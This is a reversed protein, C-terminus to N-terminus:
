HAVDVLNGLGERLDEGLGSAYPDSVEGVACVKNRRLHQPSGPYSEVADAHDQRPFDPRRHVLKGIGTRGVQEQECVGAGWIFQSPICALLMSTKLSPRKVRRMNGM